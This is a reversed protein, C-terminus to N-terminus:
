HDDELWVFGIAVAMDDDGAISGQPTAHIWAQETAFVM